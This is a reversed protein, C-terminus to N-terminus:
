AAVEAAIPAAGMSMTTRTRSTTRGGTPMRAGPRGGRGPRADPAQAAVPGAARPVGGAAARAAVPWWSRHAVALDGTTGITTASCGAPMRGRPGTAAGALSGRWGPDAQEAVVSGDPCAPDAPAARRRDDDPRHAGPGGGPRRSGPAGAVARRRGARRPEPRRGRAVAVAGPCRALQRLGITADLETSWRTRRRGTSSWSASRAAASSRSSRAAPVPSSGPSRMTSRRPGRGVRGPRRRGRPPAQPGRRSRTACSATQASWCWPGRGRRPNPM